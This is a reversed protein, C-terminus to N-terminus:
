EFSGEYLEVEQEDKLIQGFSVFFSLDAWHREKEKLM